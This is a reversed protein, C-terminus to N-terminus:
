FYNVSFVGIYSKHVRPSSPPETNVLVGCLVEEHHCVSPLGMSFYSKAAAIMLSGWAKSIVDTLFDTVRTESKM